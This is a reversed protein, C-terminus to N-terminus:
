SRPIEYIKHEAGELVWGEPVYHEAYEIAAALIAAKAWLIIKVVRSDDASPAYVLRWMKESM